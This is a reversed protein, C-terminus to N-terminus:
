NTMDVNKAMRPMHLSLTHDGAALEPESIMVKGIREIYQWCQCASRDEENCM